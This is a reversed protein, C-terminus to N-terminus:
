LAERFLRMERDAMDENVTNRDTQTFCLAAAYHVIADRWRADIAIVDTPQFSTGGSGTATLVIGESFSIVSSHAAAPSERLVARIAGNINALVTAFDWKAASADNIIRRVDAAVDSGAITTM